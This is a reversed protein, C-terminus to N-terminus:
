IEPCPNEHLLTYRLFDLGAALSIVRKISFILYIVLFLIITFNIGLSYVRNNIIIFILVGIILGVSSSLLFLMRDVMHAIISKANEQNGSMLYNYWNKNFKNDCERFKNYYNSDNNIRCKIILDIIDSEIFIAIELCLRGIFLGSLFLIVPLYDNDFIQIKKISLLIPIIILSGAILINTYYKIKDANLDNSIKM